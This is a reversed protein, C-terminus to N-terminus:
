MALYVEAAVFAASSTLGALNEFEEFCNPGAEIM